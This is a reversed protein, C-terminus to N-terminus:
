HRHPHLGHRLQPYRRYIRAMLAAEAERAADMLALLDLFRHATEVTTCGWAIGDEERLCLEPFALGMSGTAVRLEAVVEHGDAAARM